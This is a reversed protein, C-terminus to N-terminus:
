SPPIVSCDCTEPYNIVSEGTVMCAVEVYDFQRVDRIDDCSVGFSDVAKGSIMSQDHRLAEVLSIHCGLTDDTRTHSVFRQAFGQALIWTGRQARRWEDLEGHTLGAEHKLGWELLFEWYDTARVAQRAAVKGKIEDVPILEGTIIELAGREPETETPEPYSGLILGTIVGMVFLVGGFVVEKIWGSM